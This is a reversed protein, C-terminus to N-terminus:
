ALALRLGSTVLIAALLYRLVHAPLHKAGAWSGILGGIAAAIAWWPLASPLVPHTSWIAGFAAGATYLNSTQAVAAVRKTPAWGLILMTVAVFLGGGIGTLGALLGSIGGCLVAPWLPPEERARSDLVATMRAAWAMQSGAVLLIVTMAAHYVAPALNILGGVVSLPIGLIAFPLWDRTKLLGARHFGTVGIAAVLTTLALATAKIIAPSYGFLGMVVVYGPAGAQGVAAFLAAVIALCLPLLAMTM